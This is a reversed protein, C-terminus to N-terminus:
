WDLCWFNLTSNLVFGCLSEAAVLDRYWCENLMNVSQKVFSWMRVVDQQFATVLVWCICYYANPLNALIHSLRQASVKTLKLKMNCQNQVSQICTISCVTTLQLIHSSVNKSFIWALGNTYRTKQGVVTIKCQKTKNHIHIHTHTHIYICLYILM